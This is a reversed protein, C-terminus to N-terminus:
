CLVVLESKEPKFGTEALHLFQGSSFVPLKKMQLLSVMFTGERLFSNRLHFSNVNAFRRSSSM